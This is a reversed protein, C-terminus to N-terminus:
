RSRGYGTDREQQKAAQRAPTSDYASRVKAMYDLRRKRDEWERMKQRRAAQDDAPEPRIDLAALKQSSHGIASLVAAKDDTYLTVSQKGRSASVYLQESNTAPLSRSSM